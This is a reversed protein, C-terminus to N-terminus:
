WPRDGIELAPGVVEPEPYAVGRRRDSEKTTRMLAEAWGLMAGWVLHGAIMTGTRWAPRNDPPRQLGLSPLAGAYSATWVGLGFAVGALAPPLPVRGAIAGYLAGVAAGFAFHASSSALDLGTKGVEDDTGTREALERTIQRPPLEHREEHPVLRDLAYIFLTRPATALAGAVAGRLPAIGTLRGTERRITKAPSTRLNHQEARSRNDM